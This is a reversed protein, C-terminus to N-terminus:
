VILHITARAMPRSPGAYATPLFAKGSWKNMEDHYCRFRQMKLRRLITNIQREKIHSGATRYWFKGCNRLFAVSKLSVNKFSYTIKVCEKYILPVQKQERWFRDADYNETLVKTVEDFNRTLSAMM